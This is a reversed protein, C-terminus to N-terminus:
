LKYFYLALCKLPFSKELQKKSLSSVADLHKRLSLLVHTADNSKWVLRGWWLRRPWQKTQKVEFFIQWSIYTINLWHRVKNGFKDVSLLGELEWLFIPPQWQDARSPQLKSCTKSNICASLLMKLDICGNFSHQTFSSLAKPCFM